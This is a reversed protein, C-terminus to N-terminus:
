DFPSLDYQIFSFRKGTELFNNRTLLYQFGIKMMLEDTKNDTRAHGLITKFGCSKAEFLSELMVRITTWKNQESPVVAVNEFYCANFKLFGPHFAMELGYEYPPYYELNSGLTYAIPADGKFYLFGIPKKSIKDFFRDYIDELELQHDVPFAEKEVAYVSQAYESINTKTLKVARIGSTHKISISLLMKLDPIKHIKQEWFHSSYKNSVYVNQLKGLRYLNIRFGIKALAIISVYLQYNLWCLQKKYCFLLRNRFKM